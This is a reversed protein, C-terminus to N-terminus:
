FIILKKWEPSHILKFIEEIDQDLMRDKEIFPVKKRIMKLIKEILPSSKLPKRLDLAQSACLLEISIIRETNELIKMAKRASTVGMSVHDEQDASIPINDVSAPHSLTRNESALSAATVHTLMLGSELGPNKSLFAPLGENLNPNMLREIRRESINGLETLAIGMFDSVLAIPEGHFNGGSLIEGEDSFILPNETASNIEIELIGRIFKLTERIAGHVQPMCRLSYSDQIKLKGRHSNWLESDEIFKKIRSASLKQGEYPRVNHIKEDFPDISGKLADLTMAGALDATDILRETRLLSLSAIATMTQTGNILAIGEKAELTLPSLGANKFIEKSPLLKGKYYAKGEGIIVSALHSLPALDGSAGVSGQSPIFPHIRENLLKILFEVLEVRVGSYGKALVNARLLMMARVIDESFPEGVGTCHSRIMNMQLNSLDKDKIDIDSLSGFGTNVGYIRKGQKLLKKLLARSKQIKTKSRSSLEVESLKYAVSEIEDLKLNDGDIVIKGM